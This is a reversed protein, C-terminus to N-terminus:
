RYEKKFLEEKSWDKKYLLKISEIARKRRREITRIECQYKEIYNIKGEKLNTSSIYLYDLVEQLELPLVYYCAMIRNLTEQKEILERIQIRIETAQREKLKLFDDYVDSLDHFSNSKGDNEGSKGPMSAVTMLEEDGSLNMLISEINSTIQASMNKYNSLTEIILEDYIQKYM